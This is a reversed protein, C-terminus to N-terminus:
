FRPRRLWHILGYLTLGLALLALGFIWLGYLPAILTQTELYDIGILRELYVQVLGAGALAFGGGLMGFAVLWFPALGTVRRAQGRMEFVAQNIVGLLIAAVAEHALTPQLYSFRTGATWGQVTALLGGALGIGLLISLVGLATWHAALTDTTNRHSFALYTHSAFILTLLPVILAIITSFGSLNLGLPELTLLTVLAGALALLGAVTYLSMEAWFATVTSFRGILWYALAVAALLRAIYDNTGSVLAHLTASVLVDSSPLLAILTCLASLGMGITWVFAIPTWSPLSRRIEIIVLAIVVAKLPACIIDIANLRNYVGAALTLLVLLSWLGQAFRLMRLDRSPNLSFIAYIGGGLLGGMLALDLLSASLQSLQPFSLGSLFPTSPLFKLGVLLNLLACLVLLAITQALFRYAIRTM